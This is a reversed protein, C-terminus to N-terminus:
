NKSQVLDILRAIQAKIDQEDQEVDQVEKDISTIQKNQQADIRENQELEDEMYKALAQEPSLEPYAQQAKYHIDHQRSLPRDAMKTMPTGMQSSNEVIDNAWSEYLNLEKM